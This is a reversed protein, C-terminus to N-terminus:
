RRDRGDPERPLDLTLEVDYVIGAQQAGSGAAAADKREPTASRRLM